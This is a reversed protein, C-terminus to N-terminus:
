TNKWSPAHADRGCSFIVFRALRGRELTKKGNAILLAMFTMRMVYM